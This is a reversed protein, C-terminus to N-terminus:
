TGLLVAWAHQYVRDMQRKAVLGFVLAAAALNATAQAPTLWTPVPDGGSAIIAAVFRFPFSAAATAAFLLLVFLGIRKWNM